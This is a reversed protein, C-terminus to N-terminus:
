RPAWGRLAEPDADLTGLARGARDVVVLTPLQTLRYSKLIAGHRDHLWPVAQGVLVAAAAAAEEQVDVVVLTLGRARAAEALDALGAVVAEGGPAWSAWVLVAAPGNAEVWDSWRVAIGAPDALTLEAAGCPGGTALAVVAALVWATNRRCRM